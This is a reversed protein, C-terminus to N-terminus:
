SPVLGFLAAADDGLIAEREYDDLDAADIAGPIVRIVTM